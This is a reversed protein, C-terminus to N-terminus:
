SGLEALQARVQADFHGRQGDDFPNVRALPQGATVVEGDAIALQVVGRATRQPLTQTTPAGGEPAITITHRERTTAISARGASHALLTRDDLAVLAQREAGRVLAEVRALEGRDRVDIPGFREEWVQVAVIWKYFEQTIEDGPDSHDNARMPGHPYVGPGSDDLTSTTKTRFDSVPPALPFRRGSLDGTALSLKAAAVLQAPSEELFGLFAQDAAGDLYPGDYFTLDLGVSAANGRVIHTGTESVPGLQGVSGDPNVCFHSSTGETLFKDTTGHITRGGEHLGVQDIQDARRGSDLTMEQPRREIPVGPVLLPQWWQAHAVDGRRQHRGGPVKGGDILTAQRDTEARNVAVVQADLEATHERLRALDAPTARGTGLRLTRKYAMVAEAYAQVLAAHDPASAELTRLGDALHVMAAAAREVEARDFAGAALATTDETERRTQDAMWIDRRGEGAAPDDGEVPALRHAQELVGVGLHPAVGAYIGDRAPEQDAFRGYNPTKWRAVISAVRQSVADKVAAAHAAPLVELWAAARQAWPEIWARVADATTLEAPVGVAIQRPLARALRAVLETWFGAQSAEPVLAALRAVEAPAVEDRVLERALARAGRDDAAAAREDLNQPPDIPRRQVVAGTRQAITATGGAAFADAFREAELELADGPASVELRGRVERAAGGQQQVVHAIEHAILHDGAPTGPAYTDAAFYLDTGLTWAEAGLEASAAQAAAGTHVMVGGLDAGTAGELRSRLASPLGSGMEGSAQTAQAEAAPGATARARRQLRGTLTAKGPAAGPGRGGGTGDSASRRELDRM